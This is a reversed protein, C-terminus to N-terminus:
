AFGRFLGERGIREEQLHFGFVGGEAQGGYVPQELGKQLLSENVLGAGRFVALGQILQGRRYMAMVQATQFALPNEHHLATGKFPIFFLKLRGCM